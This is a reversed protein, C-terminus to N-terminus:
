SLPKRRGKGLLVNMGVRVNFAKSDILYISSIYDAMVYMQCFSGPSLIIGAGPNFFDINEGDYVISSGATLEVWNKLNFHLSLTTNFRFTNYKFGEVFQEKDFIQNKNNFMGKDLQGHFLLGARLMKALSVSAGLNFKTPIGYWYNCTDNISLETLEDIQESFYAGLSDTNLAGEDVISNISFGDYSITTEGNKPVLTYGNNKWHIGTSIDNISASFSFPGLEFKAGIDFATGMNPNVFMSDLIFMKASTDFPAFASAQLEYYLRANLANYDDATELVARTNSSQINAIGYLVKARIGVTLNIAKFYHGIGASAELYSQANILDGDVVHLETVPNGNADVNGNLVANLASIPLGININNNLRTNVTFFTHGLKFGLGLLNVDAGLRIQNTESLTDVLRNIDVITIQQEPDYSVFDGVAVPMGFQIGTSPLQLYINSQTPFFAANLVNSQPTRIAHYFLNNDSNYQANATHTAAILTVLILIYLRKM